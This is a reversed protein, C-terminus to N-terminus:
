KLEKDLFKDFKQKHAEKTEIYFYKSIGFKNTIDLYYYNNEDECIPTLFNGILMITLIMFPGGTLFILKEKWHYKGFLTDIYIDKSNILFEINKFKPKM